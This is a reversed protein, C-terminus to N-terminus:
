GGAGNWATNELAIAFVLSVCKHIEGPHSGEAGIRKQRHRGKIVVVARVVGAIRGVQRRICRIIPSGAIRATLHREAPCDGPIRHTASIIAEPLMVILQESHHEAVDCSLGPAGRGAVIRRIERISLGGVAAQLLEPKFIFELRGRPERQAAAHPLRMEGSADRFVGRARARPDRQLNGFEVPHEVAEVAM